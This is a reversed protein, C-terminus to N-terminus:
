GASDDSLALEQALVRRLEANAELVNEIRAAWNGALIGVYDVAGRLGEEKLLADRSTLFATRYAFPWFSELSDTVAFVAHRQMMFRLRSHAERLLADFQLMYPQRVEYYDVVQRRLSPDQILGLQGGQKLGIYASSVPQYLDFMMLRVFHRLLVSDQTEELGAGIKALVLASQDWGHMRRQMTSLEISDASLDALLELFSGREAIRDERQQRWNDGALSLSVGLFIVLFETVIRPWAIPRLKM